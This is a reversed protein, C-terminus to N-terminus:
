AFNIGLMRESMRTIKLDDREWPASSTFSARVFAAKSCNGELAWQMILQKSLYFEVKSTSNEDNVRIATSQNQNRIRIM